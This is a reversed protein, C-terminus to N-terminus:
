LGFAEVPHAKTDLGIVVFQQFLQATGVVIGLDHGRDLPDALGAEPIKRQIQHVAQGPLGQGGPFGGQFVHQRQVRVM